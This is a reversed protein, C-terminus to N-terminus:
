HAAAADPPNRARLFAVSAELMQLRTAGRSLWHDEEKLTVLEADKKASRLAEYMMKSQEFPVVTDDKGHILLIPVTAASVHRIPSIADLAPDDPGSIGMFRDWYRQTSNQKRGQQDNVWRLMRKLDGIGAVSVACRYVGPDLTPGALAAYGGYSAGVICVRAPDILGEKALYRVGDSLDTQMKRGWQGFGSSVFEWTLASGRYNPRLVAYGQDALAQSWWDFDANDRAEPGGHPLVILPLAQPAKDRPLTLYAPIRTGDAAAYSIARVEFPQTVGEYVEGLATARHAQLDVLMYRLGHRAGEVRVIFKGFDASASEYLVHEGPFTRVIAEWSAKVAPDFFVYEESDGVRVGGIMRNTLPHEIPENLTESGAMTTGISGDKLSMLKWVPDGHEMMQLLLTDPTPGWGLLEPYELGEKGSAVEQLRGDHRLFIRWRGDDDAYTEEAQVEGAEDVVWGQTGPKGPKVVRSQQTALDVRVLALNAESTLQLGPVFLVTRDKLHRVMVRGMIVNMLDVHNFTDPQPIQFLRHTALDYAQMQTWEIRDGSFGIPAYTMSTAILLRDNDAWKLYRLKQQGVRVGSLMSHTEVSYVAVVRDNGETKALAVRTGDPSLALNELRPLRGYVELPLAAGACPAAALACSALLRLTRGIHFPM